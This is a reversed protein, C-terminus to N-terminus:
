LEVTLNFIKLFTAFPICGQMDPKCNIPGLSMVADKIFKREEKTMKM